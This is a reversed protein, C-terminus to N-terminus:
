GDSGTLSSPFQGPVPYRKEGGILGGLDGAGIDGGNKDAGDFLPHGFQEPELRLLLGLFFQHLM